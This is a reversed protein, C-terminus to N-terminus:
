HCNLLLFVGNKIIHFLSLSSHRYRMQFVASCLYTPLDNPTPAMNIPFCYFDHTTDSALPFFPHVSSEDPIRNVSPSPSVRWRAVNLPMDLSYSIEKTPTSRHTGYFAPLHVGLDPSGASKPIRGPSSISIFSFVLVLKDFDLPPISKSHLVSIECTIAPRKVNEVAASEPRIHGRSHETERVQDGFRESGRGGLGPLHGTSAPPPSAAKTPVGPLPPLFYIILYRYIHPTRAGVGEGEWGWAMASSWRDM